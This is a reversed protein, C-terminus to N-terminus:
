TAEYHEECLVAMWNTNRLVGPEGCICCTRSAKEVAKDYADRNLTAKSPSHLYMRLGGFKEKIQIAQYDTGALTDMFEEVIPRWGKMICLSFRKDINREYKVIFQEEYDRYEQYETM